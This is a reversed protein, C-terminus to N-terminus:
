PTKAGQVDSGTENGGAPPAAVGAAVAPKGHGPVILKARYPAYEFKDSHEENHCATCVAEPVVLKVNKGEDVDPDEAHLSGPGHCSECGVDVLGANQVVAAGGPKGYGTVHCGVCSLSFQKNREELTAYARGHEHGRWWSHAQEHCEGCRASGVYGAEGKPVPLPKVDALAKRNAENVRLDHAKMLASLEPDDEIEPGLEVFRASFANGDVRPAGGLAALQEQLQVLRSKQEAVLQKDAAPDREWAQVRAALEDAKRQLAEREAKRSWASADAFPGKGGRFVDVVLLGHGDRAARLLTTQGVREPPPAEKSDLGGVIAFDVGALGGALRRAGRADSAILAVVVDAGQARLGDAARQAAALSDAPARLGAEGKADIVGLVGVKVGSRTWLVSDKLFTARAAGAAPEIGAALWSLKAQGGLRELSALGRQLDAPGPAAAVLSLRALADALTQAQLQEQQELGQETGAASAGHEGAAHSGFLLSGASVFLIPTGDDGVAKLQTAAKDIGGLPRSQCGCPELYGNLDTLAV